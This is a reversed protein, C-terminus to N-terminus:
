YLVKDLNLIKNLNLSNNEFYFIKSSNDNIQIHFFTETNKNIDSLHAGKIFSKLLIKKIKLNCNELINKINNYDNTNILSFSLEHSYFDGFLGIPM